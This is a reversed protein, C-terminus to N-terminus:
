PTLAPSMRKSEGLLSVGDAVKSTAFSSRRAWGLSSSVRLRGSPRGFLHPISSCDSGGM